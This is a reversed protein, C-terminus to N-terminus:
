KGMLQKEMLDVLGVSDDLDFSPIGPLILDTDTALALLEELRCIHEQSREARVVEIKPMDSRKYGETLIIDVDQNLAVLQNLSWEDEVKKLMAVRHPSSITVCDAGAQTHRWTDTGPHDMDFNHVDHKITAVRYGRSKLEKILKEIMTTKGSKKKGVISVVPIM